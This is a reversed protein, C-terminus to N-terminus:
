IHSHSKYIQSNFEYSITGIVNTVDKNTCAVINEQIEEELQLALNLKNM